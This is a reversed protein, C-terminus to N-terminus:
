LSVSGGVLSWRRITSSGTPWVSVDMLRHPLTNRNLGSCVGIV